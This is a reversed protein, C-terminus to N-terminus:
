CSSCKTETVSYVQIIEFQVRIAFVFHFKENTINYLEKRYENQTQIAYTIWWFGMLDDFLWLICDLNRFAMGIANLYKRWKLKRSMNQSAALNGAIKALHNRLATLGRLRTKFRGLWGTIWSYNALFQTDTKPFHFEDPLEIHFETAFYSNLNCLVRHIKHLSLTM